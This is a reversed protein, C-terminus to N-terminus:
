VHILVWDLTSWIPHFYTGDFQHRLREPKLVELPSTEAYGANNILGLLQRDNSAMHRKVLAVAATIHEANTVDLILPVILNANGGARAKLAVGDAEKRVGAYVM